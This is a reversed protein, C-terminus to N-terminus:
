FLCCTCKDSTYKLSKHKISVIKSRYSKISNKAKKPSEISVTEVEISPFEYDEEVGMANISRISETSESCFSGVVSMVFLLFFSVWWFRDRWEEVVKLFNEGIM